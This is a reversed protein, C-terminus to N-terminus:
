RRPPSVSALGPEPMRYVTIGSVFADGLAIDRLPEFYGGLLRDWRDLVGNGGGGPGRDQYIVAVHDEIALLDGIRVDDFTVARPPDDTFYYTGDEALFMEEVVTSAYDPLQRWSFFPLEHDGLRRHVAIWFDLITGGIFRTAPHEEPPLSALVPVYPLGAYAQIMGLPTDSARLSVRHPQEEIGIAQVADAGPSSAEDLIRGRSDRIVAEAKFRMTGVESRPFADSSPSIDAAHRPSFGWALMLTEQYRIDSPLFRDSLKENDFPYLPEVKFWLFELRNWWRSWPEVKVIEADPGGLRIQDVPGFFRRGPDGAGAEVVAYLTVPTAVLEVDPAASALEDGLAASVVWVRQLKPTLGRRLRPVGLWLTVLAAVLTSAIM